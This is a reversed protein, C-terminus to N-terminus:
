GCPLRAPDRGNKEILEAAREHREAIADDAERYDLVSLDDPLKGIEYKPNM